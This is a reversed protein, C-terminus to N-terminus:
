RRRLFDGDIITETIGPAGAAPGYHVGGGFTTLYLMGPNHPDFVPRHGWKFDYGELRYWSEGRDDSRFAASDFTNIVVTSPRRPDVAAAYVHASEDFIIKWSVGGNESRYLGGNRERRPLVSRDIKPWCSLYLRQSDIPDLALDNPGSVGEPLPLNEWSAAGDTSRYIAGPIVNSESGGRVVVLYLVGEPTRTIRWANRNAGLGSSADEWRTGGDVSKYVGMGFACVYITRNDVPSSPDILIHTHPTNGPIGWNKGRWTKGGDTSLAPMGLANPWNDNFMKMRPLDHWNSWVSWIRGEVEPDFELWYCTNRVGSIGEIAHVWSSGGDYSQSLGIDTYTTLIHLSDFPDFHMGYCTTVDLGRSTYAGNGMDNSYVTEWNAGGNVTRYTRGSSAFCVNPDSPSVGLGHPRGSYGHSYSRTHWSESFNNTIYSDWDECLSWQWSNGSDTTKFIGIKNDTFSECSLYVVEPNNQSVAFINYVPTEASATLNSDVSTWSEGGDSSRYPGGIFEQGSKRMESLMYILPGSDGKGGEAHIVPTDPLPLHTTDGSLESIRICAEDTIVTVEKSKDWWSGPFIAKITSGPLETLIRWSAGRDDSVMIKAPGNWWSRLGIYIHDGDAPDVRVMDLWAEPLGDTTEFFQEAHDGAMREHTVDAPDPFVMSWQLGGNESRWLATNAAYVTGESGPDFEFDAVRTRLNFMKWNGGDDFTVYAGTMDCVLLVHAPDFPDITPIFMGGGGGPGVRSWALEAAQITTLQRSVINRCLMSADGTDVVGNGDFDARPDKANRRSILVLELVDLVNTYGNDDVDERYVSGALRQACSPSPVTFFVAMAIVIIVPFFKLDKLAYFNTM